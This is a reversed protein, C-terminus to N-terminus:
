SLHQEKGSNQKLTQEAKV